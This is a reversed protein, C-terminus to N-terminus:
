LHLIRVGALDTVKVFLNDKTIDFNTRDKRCKEIKRYLKDRLHSPDKVRSRISHVLALLEKTENLPALVQGLFTRVLHEHEVFHAVLEDVQKREQDTPQYVM